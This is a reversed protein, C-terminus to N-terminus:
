NVPDTLPTKRDRALSDHEAGKIMLGTWDNILDLDDDETLEKTNAAHM